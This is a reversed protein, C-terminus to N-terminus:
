ANYEEMPNLYEYPANDGYIKEGRVARDVLDLFENIDCEEKVYLSEVALERMHDVSLGSVNNVLGRIRSNKLDWRRLEGAYGLAERELSFGGRKLLFTLLHEPGGDSSHLDLVESIVIFNCPSQRRRMGERLGIVHIYEYEMKGTQILDYRRDFLMWLPGKYGHMAIKCLHQGDYDLLPKKAQPHPKYGITGDDRRFFLEEPYRYPPEKHGCYKNGKSFHLYLKNRFLYARGFCEVKVGGLGKSGEASIPCKVSDTASHVAGLSRELRYLYARAHGTIQSGLFPNYLSGAMWARRVAVFRKLVPDWREDIRVGSPLDCGVERLEERLREEEISKREITSLLKGFLANMTIKYLVYYPDDKPTTEKKTYFHEVFRRFPNDAKDTPMWVYGRISDIRINFPVKLIEEVEFGTHWLEKFPGGKVPKFDHTFILPYKSNAGKNVVEGSLCYVGMLDPVYRDTAEYKGDTIGPMQAMAFPYASNIDVEYLDEKIAPGPLYFGNKGGHFSLESAKVIEVPPFPIHEGLKLFHRRFVKAAYSPLSMSPSADYAKHFEMIKEGLKREGSADVRSYEEFELRAPDDQPLKGYDVRGLDKPKKMKAEPIQFMKLSKELSAQTFAKSDYIQLTRGACILSCKNVKGYLMKVAIEGYACPIKFRIDNFQEYMEMHYKRFLVRLDFNLNHFYCLNVGKDRMRPFMWGWFDMFIREQDTYCFLADGGVNALLEEPTECPGAIQLSIPQGLCTETDAGFVRLNQNQTFGRKLPRIGQFLHSPYDVDKIM